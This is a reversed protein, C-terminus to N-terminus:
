SGYLHIGTQRDIIRRESIPLMFGVVFVKLRAQWYFRYIGRCPLSHGTFAYVEYRKNAKM